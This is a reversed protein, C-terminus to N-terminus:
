SSNIKSANNFHEYVSYFNKCKIKKNIIVPKLNFTNLTNIFKKSDLTFNNANLQTLFQACAIQNTLFFIILLLIFYLNNLDVLKGIFDMSLLEKEYLKLLTLSTKVITQEGDRFLLDWILTSIEIPLTKTFLTNVWNIMFLETNLNQNKFHNYLDPLHLNFYLDFTEYYSSMGRQDLNMFTMLLPSTELLNAFAIFADEQKMNLLFM